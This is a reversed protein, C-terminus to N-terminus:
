GTLLSSWAAILLLVAMARNFRRMARPSRVVRASYAGLWAWCAMCPVSVMFFLGALLAVHAAPHETGASFVGLVTLAMVWSKPNILQLAAAAGAGLRTGTDAATVDVAASRYLGWALWSLWLVGAWAMARQVLPRDLLLQGLGSGVVGVLGAAGACAGLLMPVSARLGHRASNSLVLLNTPGPTISAVFAFLLFPLM